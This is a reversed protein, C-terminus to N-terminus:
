IPAKKSVLASIVRKVGDGDVLKNGNKKMSLRDEYSNLLSYVSEAIEQPVVRSCFGLSIGAGKESVGLAAGRQNDVLVVIIAPLGMFALEWVTSGGASIALDAWAMLEPMNTVNRELRISFPAGTVRSKLDEYHPNEGGIVVMAEIDRLKLLSLAELVKMTCNDPDSGGMTILIKKAVEPIERGYGRRKLFERRLLVYDTGLLLVTYPERKKYLEEHAQINQNLVIDAYYHDAHGYDDLFLLRQGTEKIIRQYRADFRYGDVVIWDAGSARAFDATKVADKDGGPDASIVEVEMGEGRWRERVSATEEGLLLVVRGGRDQWGQALALCRMVHGSGIRTNGDARIVLTQGSLDM